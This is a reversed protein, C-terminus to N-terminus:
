VCMCAITLIHPRKIDIHLGLHTWTYNFDSKKKQHMMAIRVPNRGLALLSEIPSSGLDLM